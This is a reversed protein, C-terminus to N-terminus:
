ESLGSLPTYGVTYALLWIMLATLTGYLHADVVVPAEILPGSVPSIGAIQEWGLKVALLLGVAAALRRQQPLKLLLGAAVLGHLLGSLGVYWHIPFSFTLLGVGTGLSICLIYISWSVQPHHRVFILWILALAALNLLLHEENIHLLHATFLRWWEGAQIADRDYALRSHEDFGLVHLLFSICFLFLFPLHRLAPHDMPPKKFM